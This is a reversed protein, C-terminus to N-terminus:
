QFVRKIVPGYSLIGFCKTLVINIILEVFAAVPPFIGDLRCFSKCGQLVALSFPFFVEVREAGAGVLMVNFSIGPLQSIKNRLIYVSQCFCNTFIPKYVTQFPSELGALRPSVIGGVVLVPIERYHLTVLLRHMKCKQEVPYAFRPQGLFPTPRDDVTIISISYGISVQPIFILSLHTCPEDHSGQTQELCVTSATGLRYVFYCTRNKFFYGNM